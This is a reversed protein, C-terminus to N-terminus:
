EVYTRFRDRGTSRPQVTMGDTQLLVTVVDVTGQQLDLISLGDVEWPLACPVCIGLSVLGGDSDFALAKVGWMEFNWDGAIAELAPYNPDIVGLLGGAVYLFGDRSAIGGLYQESIAMFYRVDGSTRDVEFLGAGEQATYSVMWLAGSDDFTMDILWPLVDLGLPGIVMTEGTSPIIELLVDAEADIGYLVGHRDYALAHVPRLLKAVGSLEGSGLDANYLTGDTDSHPMFIMAQDGATAVGGSAMFLV